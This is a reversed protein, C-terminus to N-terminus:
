SITSSGCMRTTTSAKTPNAISTSRRQPPFPLIYDGTGPFTVGTWGEWDAISGRITMARPSGRVVRAGLRSTCDSGRISRCATPRSDLVLIAEIPILPYRDKETPRVCAIVARYGRARANAQMARVM